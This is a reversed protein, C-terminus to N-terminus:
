TEGLRRDAWDQSPTSAPCFLDESSCIGFERDIPGNTLMFVM